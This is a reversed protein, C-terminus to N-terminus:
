WLGWRSNSIPWVKYRWVYPWLYALPRLSRAKGRKDKDQAITEALAAGASRDPNSISDAM